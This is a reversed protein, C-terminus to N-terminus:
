VPSLDLKELLAHLHRLTLSSHSLTQIALDKAFWNVHLRIVALVQAHVDLLNASIGYFRIDNRADM